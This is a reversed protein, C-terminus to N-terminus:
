ISGKKMCIRRNKVGTMYGALMAPLYEQIIAIFGIVPTICFARAARKPVAGMFQVRIKIENIAQETSRRM